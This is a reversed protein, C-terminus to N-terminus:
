LENHTLERVTTTKARNSVTEEIIKELYEIYSRWKQAVSELILIHFMMMRNGKNAHNESITEPISTDQIKTRLTIPCQLFLWSSRHTEFNFTESVALQRIVWSDPLDNKNNEPYRVHYGIGASKVHPEQPSDSSIKSGISNSPM